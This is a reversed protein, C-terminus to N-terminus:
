IFGIAAKALSKIECEGQLATFFSESSNIARFRAQRIVAAFDGPTLHSLRTLGNLLELTPAALNLQQCYRQFLECAQTPKLFDFKVKLDFRRLAAQDLGEMLNTSAVFIGAFSEMQTLMENVMSVEWGRQASRRDQLFSDIEDILLIAGSQDAQKFALAINKENDGVWKSMLDSGRKIVLPLDLREALWRAYATKGTGPPGYLCLRGSRSIILGDAVEALNADAEIFAQNYVEPLSNPDYKRIPQHGQAELTSGILKEIASSTEMAGLEKSISRVVSAARAVIAPALSESNSFREIDKPELLDACTDKIIRKRQAKPPVPLEIVMDFRRIFAPDLESITNSLWLAPIPNEELTRNLWAKHTQATSKKGFIQNGDDFVDEVEDFLLLARREGFFSQAARFARLRRDGCVPDGENDESTIEFLECQLDEAIVKALQSKGTGPAGYLFINVGKRGSLLAQRLYPRLITLSDTIHVYDEMALEATSGIAVMDRLLLMPDSEISIINDAFSDSILSLKNGLTYSSGRDIAILGSKSLIGQSSLSRRIVEEPLDLLNALVDLLKVSSLPGLWDTIDNLLRESQLLVTFELIRCEESSLGVLKALRAVNKKLCSPATIDAFKFEAAQHLRRLQSRILKPNFDKSVPDVWEGLGLLEALADNSFSSQSIFERYCGLPILIRLIWLHVIPHMNATQSINRSRRRIAMINEQTYFIM